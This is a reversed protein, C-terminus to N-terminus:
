CSMGTIEFERLDRKLFDQWEGPTHKKGTVLYFCLEKTNSLLKVNLLKGEHRDLFLHVKSLIETKLLSPDRKGIRAKFMRFSCTLQDSRIQINEM